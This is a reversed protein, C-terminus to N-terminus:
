EKQIEFLKNANPAVNFFDNDYLNKINVNNRKELSAANTLTIVTEGQEDVEKKFFNFTHNPYPLSLIETNHTTFFLQEGDGLLDVMINLCDIELDSNVYSFQEDVYYFGNLHKKIRFITSAINVAYKTGSSFYKIESLKNGHTIPAINGNRFLALYTNPIESSIAVDFISNDFTSLVKKLINAYEKKDSEEVLCSILDSKEEISPFDFSWGGISYNELANLYNDFKIDDNLKAILSEYSDDKTAQINRIRMSVQEEKILIEIRVFKGNKDILDMEINAEKSKNTVMKVVNISEKKDLFIFTKWIAKGFTTKATGNSGMLVNAKVYRINPYDKLYEGDLNTNVLKKPYTFGTEFNNFAYINNLKIHLLVM